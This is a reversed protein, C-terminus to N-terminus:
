FQRFVFWLIIYSLIILPSALLVILLGTTFKDWVEKWKVNKTKEKFFDSTKTWLGTFFGKINKMVNAMDLEM